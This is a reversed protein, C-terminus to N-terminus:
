ILSSPKYLGVNTAHYPSMIVTNNVLCGGSYHNKYENNELIASGLNGRQYTKLNIDFEGIYSSRKPILIIKKGNHLIDSFSDNYSYSRESFYNNITNNLIDYVSVGGQKLIIYVENKIKICRGFSYPIVDSNITSIITDTNINYKYFRYDAFPILLIENESIQCASSFKKPLLETDFSINATSQSITNNEIDYIVISIASEPILYVKNGIRVCDIFRGYESDQRPFGNVSPGSEYTGTIYNYLGINSSNYPCLFIYGNDLDIGRSFAASSESHLPGNTYNNLSYDYFGIYDHELPVFMVKCSNPINVADSFSGFIDLSLNEPPVVSINDVSDSEIFKYVLFNHNIVPQCGGRIYEIM